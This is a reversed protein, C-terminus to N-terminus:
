EKVSPATTLGNLCAEIHALLIQPEIPRRIFYTAGLAIGRQTDDASGFSSSLFVFPMSALKPDAKIERILVFGDEIPMHLDSLILDFPEARAKALAEQVGGALTLQYGFPALTSRILESNVASDDVVLIRAERVAIVEADEDQEAEATHHIGTSRMGETLFQEVQSIFNEPDIPKSIYGDFGEALLKERDGVMALATVAIVPIDHLAPTSKVSRVIEYGDMGPLHVDCIILDPATSVALELGKTGDGAQFIRHGYALLLYAMLDMNAANDEIILVRASVVNEGLIIMVRCDNRGPTGNRVQRREFRRGESM